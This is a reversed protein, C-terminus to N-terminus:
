EWVEWFAEGNSWLNNLHDLDRQNDACEWMGGHEYMRLNGDAAFQELPGVEFDGSGDADLYAFIDEDFIMYGGNIIGKSTQPKESFSIVDDGRLQLEGFRSPPNVGTITGPADHSEHYELLDIIDIDAVSDGYTLMFSRPGIFPRVNALRDGKLTHIGTEVIHVTWDEIIADSLLTADGSRTEVTVDNNYAVYNLFYDKIVSSKYGATLIFEDFGYTAYIKMIHWLIPRDGVRLMPKPVWDTMSGMRSGLGGCFIVVPYQTDM